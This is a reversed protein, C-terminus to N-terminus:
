AYVYGNEFFFLFYTSTGLENVLVPVCEVTSWCKEVIRFDNFFDELGDASISVLFKSEHREIWHIAEDESSASVDICGAFQIFHGLSDSIQCTVLVSLSEFLVDKLVTLFEFKRLLAELRRPGAWEVNERLSGHSNCCDELWPGTNCAVQALVEIVFTNSQSHGELGLIQAHAREVCGRQECNKREKFVLVTYEVSLAAEATNGLAHSFNCFFHAYFDAAIGRNFLEDEFSLIDYTGTNLAFFDSNVFDDNVSIESM